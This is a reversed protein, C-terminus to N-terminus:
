ELKKLRAAGLVFDMGPTVEIRLDNGNCRGIFLPDSIEFRATKWKGTGELKFDGAEKWAREKSDYVVKVSAGGEDFYDIELAM